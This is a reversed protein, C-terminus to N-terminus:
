QGEVIEIRQGTPIDTLLPETGGAPWFVRLEVVTDV